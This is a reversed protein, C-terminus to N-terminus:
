VYRIRDKIQLGDALDFREKAFFTIKILKYDEKIIEWGHILCALHSSGLICINIM